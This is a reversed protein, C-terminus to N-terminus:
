RKIILIIPDGIKLTLGERVTSPAIEFVQERNEKEQKTRFFKSKSLFFEYNVVEQMSKREDETDARLSIQYSDPFVMLRAQM